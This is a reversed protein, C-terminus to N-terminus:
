PAVLAVELLERATARAPPVDGASLGYEDLLLEGLRLYFSRELFDAAQKELRAALKADELVRNLDRALDAGSPPQLAVSRLPAFAPTVATVVPRGHALVFAAATCADERTPSYNLVVVDSAALCSGAEEESVPDEPLTVHHELGLSLAVDRCERVYRAGAPHGPRDGRLFAFQVQPHRAVVGPLARLIELVGEDPGFSGWSTVLELDEPLGLIRRAEHLSM